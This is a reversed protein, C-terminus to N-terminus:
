FGPRGWQLDYGEPAIRDRQETLFAIANQDPEHQCVVAIIMKRGAAAPYDESMQGNAAFDIYSDIKEELLRQHEPHDWGLHDAITLVVKDKGELHIVDIIDKQEVSM